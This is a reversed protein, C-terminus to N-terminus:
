DLSKGPIPLDIRPKGVEPIATAGVQEKNGGARAAAVKEEWEWIAGHAKRVFPDGEPSRHVYTRMAGLAGPLDDLAELAIALGFYANM